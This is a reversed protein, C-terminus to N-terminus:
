SVRFGDDGDSLPPTLPPLGPGSGLRSTNDHLLKAHSVALRPCSNDAVKGGAQRIRPSTVFAHSLSRTVIRDALSSISLLFLPDFHLFTFGFLKNSLIGTIVM